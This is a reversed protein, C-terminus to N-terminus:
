GSVTGDCEVVWDPDTARAELWSGAWDKNQQGTVVHGLPCLVLVMSGDSTERLQPRGKHSM